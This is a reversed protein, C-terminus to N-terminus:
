RTSTKLFRNEKFFLADNDIQKLKEKAQYFGAKALIELILHYAENVGGMGGFARLPSTKKSWEFKKLPILYNKINEKVPQKNEQICWKYIDCAVLNLTYIGLARMIVYKKPEKFSAPFMEKILVWYDFLYNYREDINKIENIRFLPEISNVFSSLQIIRGKGSTGSLNIIGSFPSENLNMRHGIETAEIRWLNKEVSPIGRVGSRYILFQLTDKLSPSIGKQTKNLIYFIVREVDSTDAPKDLEEKSLKTILEATQKSDIFLVPVEFELIQILGKRVLKTEVNEEKYRIKNEIKSLKDYYYQFGSMRHQGDIITIAGKFLPISLSGADRNDESTFRVEPSLSVLISPIIPIPCRNIYDAVERQQEVYLKRQYGDLTEEAWRKLDFLALIDLAKMKGTYATVGKQNLKIVNTKIIPVSTKSNGIQKINEIIHRQLLKSTASSPIAMEDNIPKDLFYLGGQHWCWECVDASEGSLTNLHKKHTKLDFPFGCCNCIRSTEEKRLQEKM